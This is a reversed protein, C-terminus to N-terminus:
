NKKVNQDAEAIAGSNKDRQGVSLEELQSQAISLVDTDEDKETLDQRNGEQSMM